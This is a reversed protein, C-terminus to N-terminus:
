LRRRLESGALRQDDFKLRTIRQRELDRQATGQQVRNLIRLRDLEHRLLAEEQADVALPYRGAEIALIEGAIAKGFSANLEANTRRAFTTGM